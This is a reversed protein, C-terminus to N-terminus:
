LNAIDWELFFRFLLTATNFKLRFAIKVVAICRFAPKQFAGSEIQSREIAELGNAFSYNSCDKGNPDSWKSAKTAKPWRSRVFFDNNRTPKQQMRFFSGLRVAFQRWVSAFVISHMYNWAIGSVFSHCDTASLLPGATLHRLCESWLRQGPMSVFTWTKQCDVLFAM